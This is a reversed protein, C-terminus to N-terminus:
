FPVGGFAETRAAFFRRARSADDLEVIFMFTGLPEDDRTTWGSM